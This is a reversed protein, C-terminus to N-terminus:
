ANCAEHRVEKLEDVSLYVDGKKKKYTFFSIYCLLGKIGCHSLIASTVDLDIKLNRGTFTIAM